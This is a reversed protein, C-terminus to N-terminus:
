ILYWPNGIVGAKGHFINQEIKKLGMSLFFLFIREIYIVFLNSTSAIWAFLTKWKIM